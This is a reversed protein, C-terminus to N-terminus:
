MTFCTYHLAGAPSPAQCLPTLPCHQPAPSYDGWPQRIGWAWEYSYSYPGSSFFAVHVENQFALLRTEPTPPFQCPSLAGEAPFFPTICTLNFQNYQFASFSFKSNRTLYYHLLNQQQCNTTDTLTKQSRQHLNHKVGRNEVNKGSTAVLVSFLKGSDVWLM